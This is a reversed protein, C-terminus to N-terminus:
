KRAFVMRELPMVGLKRGTPKVYRDNLRDYGTEEVIDWGYKELYLHISKPTFGTKWLGSKVTMKYMMHQGFINKGQIFDDVVYTFAVYSGVPSKVLSEFIRDVAGQELYQLVAEMIFFTPKSVEFYHAELASGPDETNLDICVQKIHKPFTGLAQEIAEKKSSINIAQDLEWSPIHKVEDLRCLRTDWGAGVNVIQEINNYLVTEKLRADIYRKRVLFGSWGGTFSSENIKVFFNRIFPIKSLTIWLKNVGSFLHSALDDEVIRQSKPFHQEVAVIVTPQDATKASGQTHSRKKIATM